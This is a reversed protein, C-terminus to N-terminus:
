ATRTPFYAAPMDHQRIVDVDLHLLLKATPPLADLVQRAAERPGTQQVDALSLVRVGSEAAPPASDTAEVRSPAAGALQAFASM